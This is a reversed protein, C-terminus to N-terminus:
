KLLGLTKTVKGEAVGSGGGNGGSPVKGLKNEGYSWQM